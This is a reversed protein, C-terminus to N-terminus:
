AIIKTDAFNRKVHEVLARNPSTVIWVDGDIAQIVIDYEPDNPDIPATPAGVGPQVGILIADITQKIHHAFEEM